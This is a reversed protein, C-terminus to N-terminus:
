SSFHDKGTDTEHSSTAKSTNTYGRHQDGPKSRSYQVMSTDSGITFGAVKYSRIKDKWLNRTNQNGIVFFYCLVLGQLTATICFIYAVVLINSFFGFIWILGFQYFLVMLQKADSFMKGKKQDHKKLKASKQVAHMIHIFFYTTLVVVLAAPLVVALWLASGSPYCFKHQFDSSNQQTYSKNSISLLLTIPIVPILWGFLAAKLIRVRDDSTHSEFVKVIMQYYVMAAVLMWSFVALVSYHLAIGFVVCVNDSSAVFDVEAVVMFLIVMLGVAGSLNIWIQHVFDSRWRQFIIATLAIIVLGIISLSCGLASIMTLAKYHGEPISTEDRTTLIQAFHTLHNCRCIDLAGLGNTLLECGATSWKGTRGRKSDWYACEKTDFERQSVFPRFYIDIHVGEDFVTVNKMSFSVIPSNVKTIRSDMQTQQFARDDRFHIFSLQAMPHVEMVTSVNVIVLNM